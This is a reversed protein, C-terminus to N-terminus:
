QRRIRNSVVNENASRSVDSQLSGNRESAPLPLSEPQPGATEAPLPLDYVQQHKMVRGGQELEVVGGAAELRRCVVEARAQTIGRLLVVPLRDVQVLHPLYEDLPPPPPLGRYLNPFSVLTVQYGAESVEGSSAPATVSVPQPLTFEEWFDAGRRVQVHVKVVCQVPWNRVPFDRMEEPLRFSGRIQIFGGARIRVGKENHAAVLHDHYTRTAAGDETRGTITERLVLSTTVDARLPLWVKQWYSFNFESGVGLEAPSIAAHPLATRCRLLLPRWRWYMAMLGVLMGLGPGFAFAISLVSNRWADFLLWGSGGVFALGGLFVLATGTRGGDPPTGRVLSTAQATISARPDDTARNM